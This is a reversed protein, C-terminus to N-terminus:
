NLSDGYTSKMAKIYEPKNRIRNYYNTVKKSNTNLNFIDKVQLCSMFIIDACSVKNGLLYNSNPIKNECAAIMKHFHLRAADVAKPAEGYIKSLGFKEEKEHKRVTYIGLCDLEMLSFFNWEDVKAVKYPENPLYFSSPCKFNNAIFNMAAASETIIFNDYRFLPVKGKPNMKLYENTQTEGTRSKIKYIKYPLKFEELM